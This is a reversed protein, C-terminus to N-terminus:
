VVSAAEEDVPDLHQHGWEAMSSVVPELSQGLETLAYEVRVPKESVITRSVIQKDELDDLSESLVKSSIGDVEEQLANFGLPGESLLRHIIVPHWKKGVLSATTTISCWSDGPCWAPLRDTDTM